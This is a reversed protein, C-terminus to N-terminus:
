SSGRWLRRPCRRRLIIEGATKERHIGDLRHERVFWARYRTYVVATDQATTESKSEIVAKLVAASRPASADQRSARLKISQSSGDRRNAASCAVPLCTRPSFHREIGAALRDSPNCASEIM